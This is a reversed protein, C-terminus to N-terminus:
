LQNSDTLQTVTEVMYPHPPLSALARDLEERSEVDFVQWSASLDSAIFLAQRIGQAHLERGRPQEAPVLELIDPTPAVAFRSEVIVNM